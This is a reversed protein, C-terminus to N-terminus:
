GTRSLPLVLHRFGERKTIFRASMMDRKGRRNHNKIKPSTKQEDVFELEFHSCFRLNLLNTIKRALVMDGNGIRVLKRKAKLDALINIMHSILEEISTYISREIENGFYFISLGMRQGPDIGILLEDELGSELKQIMLARIITPEKDFIEDQLIPIHTIKLPLEGQTTLILNGEFGDIEEPLLSYYKLGL